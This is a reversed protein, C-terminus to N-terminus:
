YEYPVREDTRFANEAFHRRFFKEEERCFESSEQLHYNHLVSFEEIFYKFKLRGVGVSCNYALLIIESSSLHSRVIRAYRYKDDPCNDEIMKYVHYCTRFYNGLDDHWKGYFGEYSRSIQKSDRFKELDNIEYRLMALLARLAERGEVKSVSRIFHLESDFDLRDIRGENLDDNLKQIEKADARILDIGSVIIQLNNLLTFLNREFEQARIEKRQSLFASLAAAAALAAMLSSISGFADGFQGAAALDGNTTGWFPLWGANHSLILAAWAMWGVLALLFIIAVSGYPRFRM